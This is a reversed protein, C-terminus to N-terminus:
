IVKLTTKKIWGYMGNELRVYYWGEETESESQDVQMTYGEYATSVVASTEAPQQYVAEEKNVMVAEDYREARYTIVSILIFFLVSIGLASFGTYRFFRRLDARFWSGILFLTGSYLFFLALFSLMTNGLSNEVFGLFRIWPLQPLVASQRPFQENVYELANASQESTEPFEGAKIFSYKAMGLSDLQMYSIGMNLWLAGSEYGDQRISQYAEIAQSFEGSELLSNAEEFRAQQATAHFWSLSCLFFFFITFLHRM